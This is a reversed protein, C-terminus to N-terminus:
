GEDPVAMRAAAGLITRRMVDIYCGHTCLCHQPMGGVPDYADSCTIRLCAGDVVQQALSRATALAVAATDHRHAERVPVGRHNGVDEATRGNAWLLWEQYAEVAQRADAENSTTGFPTHMGNSPLGLVLTSGATAAGPQEIVVQHAMARLAAKRRARLGREPRARLGLEPQPGVVDFRVRRPPTAAAPPPSPAPPPSVIVEVGDLVVVEEDEEMVSSPSMPPPAAAVAMDDLGVEGNGRAEAPATRQYQTYLEDVADWDNNLAHALASCHSVPQNGSWPTEVLAVSIGRHLTRRLRSFESFFRAAVDQCLWPPSPQQLGHSHAIGTVSCQQQRAVRRIWDIYAMCEAPTNGSGFPCGLPGRGLRRRADATVFARDIHPTGATSRFAMGQPAPAADTSTTSTTATTATEPHPVMRIDPTRGDIRRTVVRHIRAFVTPAHRRTHQQHQVFKRALTLLQRSEYGDLSMEVIRQSAANVFAQRRMAVRAMRHLFTTLTAYKCQQSLVSEIHPFRRVADMKGQARLADRKDYLVTHFGGRDFRIEMDLYQICDPSQCVMKLELSDPYMRRLVWTQEQPNLDILLVDDIARCCHSVRKILDLHRDRVPPSISLVGHPTTIPSGNLAAAAAREQRLFRIEHWALMVVALMPSCTLGMPIGCVQQYVNDGVVMHTNALIFRVDRMIATADFVVSGRGPVATPVPQSRLVWEARGALIGRPRTLELCAHGQTSDRTLTTIKAAAAAANAPTTARQGQLTILQVLAKQRLIDTQKSFVMRLMNDVADIIDQHPLSPYLTTFDWVGFGVHQPMRTTHHRGHTRGQGPLLTQRRRIELERIRRAVDRSDRIIFSQTDGGIDAVTEAAASHIEPITARLARHVWDGVVNLSQNIGGAIYRWGYPQKHTKVVGYLYALRYKQQFAEVTRNPSIYQRNQSTYEWHCRLVREYCTEPPPVPPPPPPLPPPLLPVPPATSNPTDSAKGKRAYAMAGGGVATYTATSTVEHLLQEEWHKRCAFTFAGTEKDAIGIVFASRLRKAEAAAAPSWGVETPGWRMIDAAEVPSLASAARQVEEMISASWTAFERRDVGHVDQQTQAYNDLAAEVMYTLRRAPTDEATGEETSPAPRASVPRLRYTPGRRMLERLEPCRVIRLDKTVVHGNHQGPTVFAAHEKCACTATRTGAERAASGWNCLLHRLPMHYKFVAMPSGVLRRIELPLLEQIEPSALIRPLQLREVATGIYGGVVLSRERPRSGTCQGLARVRAVFAMTQQRAVGQPDHVGSMPTIPTARLAAWLRHVTRTGMQAMVTQLNGQQTARICAHVLHDDQRCRRQRARRRARCQQKPQPTARKTASNFLSDAMQGAVAADRKSQAATHVAQAQQPDKQWRQRAWKMPGRRGTALRAEKLGAAARQQCRAVAAASGANRRLSSTYDVNWGHTGQTSALHKAWWREYPRVRANWAKPTEGATAPIHELTIYFYDHLFARAGGDQFHHGMNRTGWYVESQHQKPNGELDFFEGWRATHRKWLSQATIGVYRRGSTTKPLLLYIVHSQDYTLMDPQPHWMLPRKVLGERVRERLRWLRRSQRLAPGARDNTQTCALFYNWARVKPHGPHHCTGTFISSRLWLYAHDQYRCWKGPLTGNPDTASAHAARAGRRQDRARLQDGLQPWTWMNRTSYAVRGDRTNWNLKEPEQFPRLSTHHGNNLNHEQCVAAPPYRGAYSNCFNTSNCFSKVVGKRRVADNLSTFPIGGDVDSWPRRLRGSGDPGRASCNFYQRLNPLERRRAVRQGEVHRWKWTHPARPKWTPQRRRQARHCGEITQQPQQSHLQLEQQQPQPFVHHTHVVEQVGTGLAQQHVGVLDGHCVTPGVEQVGTGMHQQHGDLLDGSTGGQQHGLPLDGHVVTRTAVDQQHRLPQAGHVLAAASSPSPPSLSEMDTVVGAQHRVPLDGHVDDAAPPDGGLTATTGPHHLREKVGFHQLTECSVAPGRSMPEQTDRRIMAIDYASFGCWPVRILPRMRSRGYERTTTTGFPWM